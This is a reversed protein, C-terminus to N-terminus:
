ADSRRRHEARHIMQALETSERARRAAEMAPVLEVVITRIHELRVETAGASDKGHVYIIQSTQQMLDVAADVEEAPIEVKGGAKLALAGLIRGPQEFGHRM